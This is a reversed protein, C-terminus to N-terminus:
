FGPVSVVTSKSFEVLVACALPLKRTTV